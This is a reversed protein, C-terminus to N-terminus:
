QYMAIPLVVLAPGKIIDRMEPSNDMNKPLTRRQRFARRYMHRFLRYKNKTM